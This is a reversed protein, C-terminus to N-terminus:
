YINADNLILNGYYSIFREYIVEVFYTKIKFLEFTYIFHINIFITQLNFENKKLM